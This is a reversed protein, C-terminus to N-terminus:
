RDSGVVMVAATAAAVAGESDVPVTEFLLELKRTQAALDMRHELVRLPVFLLLAALWSQVSSIGMHLGALAPILGSTMVGVSCGFILSIVAPWRVVPVEGLSVVKGFPMEGALLRTVVLWEGLMIVTPMPLLICNLAAIAELGKAAGSISLLATMVCGAVALISVAMKHPMKRLSEMANISGYL